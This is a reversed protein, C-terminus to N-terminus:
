GELANGQYWFGYGKTKLSLVVHIAVWEHSDHMTRLLSIYEEPPAYYILDALKRYRADPSQKLQEGLYEGGASYFIKLGSELVDDVTNIPKNYTPKMLVALYNSLLIHLIFGGFIAWVLFVLNSALGFSKKDKTGTSNM